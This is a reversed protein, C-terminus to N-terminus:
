IRGAAENEQGEDNYLISSINVPINKRLKLVDDYLLTSVNSVNDCLVNSVDNCLVNSVHVPINERLKPVDDDYLPTFVNSVDDRLVSSIHVNKRDSPRDQPVVKGQNLSGALSKRV